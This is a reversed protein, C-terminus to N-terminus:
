GGRARARAAARRARRAPQVRAPRPALRAPDGEPDREAVPQEVEAAVSRSGGREDLRGGALAVRRHGVVGVQLGRLRRGGPVPQEREGLRRQAVGVADRVVEGADVAAGGARAADVARAEREVALPEGGQEAEVARDLVRAVRHPLRVAEGLGGPVRRRGGRRSGGRRPGRARRCRRTRGAARDAVREAAGARQHWLLAVRVREDHDAARAPVSSPRAVPTSAVWRVGDPRM